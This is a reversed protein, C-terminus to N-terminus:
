HDKALKRRLDQFAPTKIMPGIDADADFEALGYGHDACRSLLESARDVNGAAVAVVAEFWPDGDRDTSEKAASAAQSFKKTRVLSRVLRDEYRAVNEAESLISDRDRGLVDVAGDYDKAMWKSEAEWLGLKPERSAAGRHARVLTALDDAKGQEILLPGLLRFTLPKDDAEEYAEIAEGLKCRANLRNGLYRVVAARNTAHELGRAFDQEAARYDKTLLHAQGLYYNLRADKPARARHADIVAMLGAADGEKILRECVYWFAYTPNPAQAYGELPSKKAVEADLFANTLARKDGANSVGAIASKFLPAASAYDKVMVDAQAEWADLRADHPDSKRQEAALKLFPAAQRDSLYLGALQALTERRPAVEELAAAGKGAKYLAYVLNSRFPEREQNNKVLRMGWDFDRAAAAYDKKLLHGRGQYFYGDPSKPLRKIQADALTLLKDANETQALHGALHAFAHAPDASQKYAELAHGAQLQADLLCDTYFRRTEASDTRAIASELLKAAKVPQRKLSAVRARYYDIVAMDATPKTKGDLLNELAVVNESTALAEALAPFTEAPDTSRALRAAVEDQDGPPLVAALGVMNSILDPDNELGTRYARAALDTRGLAALSDGMITYVEADDGLAALADRACEFARQPNKMQAYVLAKLKPLALMTPEFRATQELCALAKDSQRQQFKIQAYLLWRTAELADPLRDNVLELVTRESTTLDGGSAARAAAVLRQLKASGPDERFASVTVAVLSSMRFVSSSEQWDVIKWDGEPRRILRFQLLGVARGEKGLMHVNIVTPDTGNTAVQHIRFDRWGGEIGERLLGDGVVLRLAVRLATKENSTPVSVIKQREIEAFMGDTDIHASVAESDNERIADLLGFLFENLRQNDDAPTPTKDPQAQVVAPESPVAPAPTQRALTIPVPLGTVCLFVAVAMGRVAAIRSTTSKM